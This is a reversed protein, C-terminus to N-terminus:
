VYLPFFSTRRICYTNRIQQTSLTIIQVHELQRTIEQQQQNVRKHNFRGSTEKAWYAQILFAEHLKPSWPSTYNIKCSQEAALLAKTFEIDLKEFSNHHQTTWNEIQHLKQLDTAIRPLSDQEYLHNLFRNTQSPNNFKFLM